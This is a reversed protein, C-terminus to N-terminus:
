QIVEQLSAQVLFRYADGASDCTSLTLVKDEQNIEVDPDMYYCMSRQDRIDDFFRKRDEPTEGSNYYYLLHRNDSRYAAFIKYKRIADPTYILVENHEKLYQEDKYRHLGAFMSGNKMNHGYLVTLYDEFTTTNFNESFIAGPFSASKDAAHNLYFNNDTPSQVVPYDIVTGPIRIWAYIDPNIQHLEEFDVPIEVKPKETAAPETVEPSPSVEPTEQIQEKEEIIDDETVNEQMKENLDESAKNSATQWVAVGLCGFAILFIVISIILWKKKKM